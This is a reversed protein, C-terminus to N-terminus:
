RRLMRGHLGRVTGDSFVERGGLLTAVVQGRLSRGEYPTLHHRHELSAGVVETVGDPDWVVFDADHGVTIAGKRDDLGALRAPAASLWEALAPLGIGRPFAGDWVAPLRLQLSSIGGWAEIFDGRDTSKLEPPAPSHDSVIMALSGASLADWLAQRHESRRIPPACKFTTAGDPIDEAAFILYHPCTEGTLQGGFASIAEAGDGSSVHLIHAKTGVDGALRAIKQIARVESEVPRSSLYTGYRRPDGEPEMLYDPEEAHILAPVGLETMQVLGEKLLDDAVPPFEPVGSDVLFSKLGCVGAAVLPGVETLSGPVLGGWFAVDVELRGSAAERKQELAAVSVTPPVSNLPMDVITTTGGAAAARTATAFGEWQERGPENVHVHSDVLGPMVILDGFDHDAPGGSDIATIVGEDFTIRAPRVHGDIM